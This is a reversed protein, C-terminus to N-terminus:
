MPREPFALWFTSGNGSESEVWARGGHTRMIKEVIALGVGTGQTSNELRQFPQFVKDQYQAPIGPGKDRVFVRVEDTSRAAGVSIVAGPDRCGYKLANSLLNDLVEMVRSRDATIEPLPGQVHLSADRARLQDNLDQRLDEMVEDLSVTQRDIEVRGIRSLQLLDNILSGMRRTAREIREVSDAANEASGEALDEKLMGVFGTVTVLPSKLDHSVSYVFQEMEQHKRWLQENVRRINEEARKRESVDSAVGALGMPQEVGDYVVRGKIEIWVEYGAKTIRYEARFDSHKELAQRMARQLHVRDGPHVRQLFEELSRVAQGPELGHLQEMMESCQLRESARDWEWTGLRAAELAFLLHQESRQLAQRARSHEIAIAAQAALAAIAEEASRGFAAPASHGLMLAGLCEGNGSVVAAALCSRVRLQPSGRDIAAETADRDDIRRVGQAPVDIGFLREPGQSDNQPMDAARPGARAYLTGPAAQSESRVFFAGYEAGSLETGADTMMQVLEQLHQKSALAANIGKLGALLALGARQEGDTRAARILLCRGELGPIALSTWRLLRTEGDYVDRLPFDLGRFTQGQQACRVPHEGARGPGAGTFGLFRLEYGSLDPPFDAESECGHLHFWQRNLPHLRGDPSLWCAGDSVAELLSALAAMAQPSGAAFEHDGADWGFDPDPTADM